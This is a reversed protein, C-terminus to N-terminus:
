ACTGPDLRSMLDKNIKILEAMQAKLDNIEAQQQQREAFEPNLGALIVDCGEIVGKHFDVSNIADISKNKLSMVEANMADRSTSIVVGSVGFDAIDATAPLKQYTTDVNNVKVVLDVVMEQAQGFVPPVQYKPVPMSVSVISGIEMSPHGDKHLIFVQNGSRLNQFM